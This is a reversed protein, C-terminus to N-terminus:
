KTELKKILNLYNDLYEKTLKLEQEIEKYQDDDLIGCLTIIKKYQEYKKVHEQLTMKM